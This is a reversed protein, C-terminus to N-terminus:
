FLHIGVYNIEDEDDSEMDAVEDDAHIADYTDILDECGVLNELPEWTDHSASYGKWRVKYKAIWEGKENQDWGKGVIKEVAYEDDHDDAESESKSENAAASVNRRGGRARCTTRTSETSSSDSANNLKMESTFTIGNADIEKRMCPKLRSVHVHQTKKTEVDKIVYNVPTTQAIVTFPGKWKHTLKASVGKKTRPVYLMVYDNVHYSHIRKLKSNAENRKHQIQLANNKVIEKAINLKRIVEAVYEEANRYHEESDLLTDIPLVAERGYLLFFPSYKTSDNIATRYAWLCYNLHEDWDNPYENTYTAIMAVITHNFREVLGNCAPHYATTNLKRIGLIEYIAQSLKSLFPAGRDSLLSRPCGHRPIVEQVLLRAITESDQNPVAFAEPWRTFRDIFIVIYKNGSNTTPKLPGLVDVVWESCAEGSPIITGIPFQNGTKPDKKGNCKVCSKIWREVDSRMTKWWVRSAMRDFTKRIGLHGMADHFETLINAKMSEPIVILKSWNKTDKGSRPYSYYYLVGNVIAYDKHAHFLLRMLVRDDSPLVGATLYDIIPKLEYDQRQKDSLQQLTPPTPQDSFRIDNDIVITETDIVNVNDGGKKSVAAGTATATVATSPGHEDDDDYKREYKDDDEVGIRSLADANTNTVGKVYEVTYDYHQLKLTWRALRGYPDALNLKPLSVLPRHDTRIVFPVGLLYQRFNGISWVVALAEKETTCYNREAANLVRSAYRIVREKGDIVQSLISGIAYKSADTTIIFPKGFEPTALIPSSTLAAKLHQFSRQAEDNWKFEIDKKTLYYLPGAIVAFGAIFARYFSCLGLFSRVDRVSKPIRFEVVARVTDPDPKVGNPGIVHGLFSVEELCFQCKILKAQLRAETLKKFVSALHILHEDFSDSFIVIDDFYVVVCKFKFDALVEDMLRQFTAPANCLGFPMVNWEFLGQKTVFATKEKDKEDMRVSWYASALDLKSYIKKKGNKSGLSDILDDVRPLPYSCKKTVANLKRYDICTRKEGGKKMVIVVPASWPSNSKQILGNELLQKIENEIHEEDVRANRYPNLKIPKADGTDISHTTKTTQTPKKPNAAFLEPFKKLLDALAASQSQDTTKIAKAVDEDKVTDVTCTVANVEESPSELENVPEISEIEVLNINAVTTCSPLVVERDSFNALRVPISNTEKAHEDSFYDLAVLSRAARIKNDCESVLVPEVLAALKDKVKDIVSNTYCPLEGKIATKDTFVEGFPPIVLDRILYIEYIHGVFGNPSRAVNNIPISKDQFKLCGSEFDIGRFRKYLIDSGIICEASLNQLVVVDLKGIPIDHLVINVSTVGIPQLSTASADRVKVSTPQLTTIDINLRRILDASAVTISAGTDILIEEVNIGNVSGNVSMPRHQIPAISYVSEATSSGGTVDNKEDITNVSTIMAVSRENQNSAANSNISNGVNNNNSGNVNQQNSNAAAGNDNNNSEQMLRNLQAFTPCSPKLHTNSGCIWCRRDRVNGAGRYYGGRRNNNYNNNNGGNNHNNNNQGNGSNRMSEIEKKLDKLQEMLKSMESSSAQHSGNDRVTTAAVAPRANNNSRIANVDFANNYQQSMIPFQDVTPYYMNMPDNNIYNPSSYNSYAFADINNIYGATGNAIELAREYNMAIEVAADLSTPQQPIVYKQFEPLLGFLFYQLKEKEHMNPNLKFMLLKISTAYDSIKERVLQHRRHLQQRLIHEDQDRPEFYKKMAAELIKWDTMLKQANEVNQKEEATTATADAQYKITEYWVKAKGELCVRLGECKSADDWKGIKAIFNFKALFDEVREGPSGSFTIKPGLGLNSPGLGISALGSMNSNSSSDVPPIGPIPISAPIFQDSPVVSSTKPVLPLSIFEPVTRLNRSYFIASPVGSLDVRSRTSHAPGSPVFITERDGSPDRQM